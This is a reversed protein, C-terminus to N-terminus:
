RRKKKIPTEIIDKPVPEMSLKYDHTFYMNRKESMVKILGSKDRGIVTVKDGKRGYFRNSLASKIDEKLYQIIM